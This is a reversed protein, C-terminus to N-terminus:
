ALFATVQAFEALTLHNRCKIFHDEGARHQLRGARQVGLETVVDNFHQVTVLANFGRQWLSAKEKNRRCRKRHQMVHMGIAAQLEKFMLGSILTAFTITIFATMVWDVRAFGSNLLAAM